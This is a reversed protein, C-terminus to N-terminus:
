HSHEHKTQFKADNLKELMFQYIAIKNLLLIKKGQNSLSPLLELLSDLGIVLKEVDSWNNVDMDDDNIMINQNDKTVKSKSENIDQMIKNVLSSKWAKLFELGNNPFDRSRPMKNWDNDDRELRELFHNIKEIVEQCSHWDHLDDKSVFDLYEKIKLFQAYVPKPNGHEHEDKIYAYSVHLWPYYRAYYSM